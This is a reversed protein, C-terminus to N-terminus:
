IFEIQTPDSRGRLIDRFARINGLLRRWRTATQGPTILRIFNSTLLRIWHSRMVEGFQPITGKRYLYYPNIVQAYGFQYESARSNPVRLHVARAADSSMITGFQGARVSWDFDELWSVLRLKEDFSVRRLIDARVCMNCGYLARAPSLTNSVTGRPFKLLEKADLRSIDGNALLNGGLLGIESHCQFIAIMQEVYDSALELDDDLLFVLSVSTLLRPLAANRQICAGAPGLVFELNLNSPRMSPLDAPTTASIIVQNPVVTQESISRLTEELIAPRGRTPIIISTYISPM